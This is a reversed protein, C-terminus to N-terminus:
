QRTHEKAAREVEALAAATAIHAPIRAEEPSCCDELHTGVAQVLDALATLLRTPVTVTVTNQYTDVAPEAWRRLLTPTIV